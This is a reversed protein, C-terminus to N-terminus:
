RKEELTMCKGYYDYDDDDDADATYNTTRHQVGMGGQYWQLLIVSGLM